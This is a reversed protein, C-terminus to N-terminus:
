KEQKTAKGPLLLREGALLAPRQTASAQRSPFCTFLSENEPSYALLTVGQGELYEPLRALQRLAFVGNGSYLAELLAGYLEITKPDLATDDTAAANHPEGSQASFESLKRDMTEVGRQLALWVADADLASEVGGGSEKFWLRGAAFAALVSLAVCIYGALPTKPALFVSAACLLVAGLLLAIAYGPIVRTKKGAEARGCRLLALMDRVSAAVADAAAQQRRDSACAANYHLLLSSLEESLAAICAERGKEGLRNARLTRRIREEDANLLESMTVTQM